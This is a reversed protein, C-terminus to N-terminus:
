RNTDDFYPQDPVRAGSAGLRMNITTTGRMDLTSLLRREEVWLGCLLGDHSSPSSTQDDTGRGANTLFCSFVKGFLAPGDNDRAPILFLSVLDTM